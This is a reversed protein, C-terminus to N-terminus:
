LSIVFELLEAVAMDRVDPLEGILVGSLAIILNCTTIASDFLKLFTMRDVELFEFVVEICSVVSFDRSFVLRFKCESCEQSKFESRQILLQQVGLIKKSLLGLLQTDCSSLILGAVFSLNLIECFTVISFYQLHGIVRTGEGM